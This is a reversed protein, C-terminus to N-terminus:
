RAPDRSAGTPPALDKQEQWHRFQADVDHESALAQAVRRCEDLHARAETIKAKCVEPGFAYRAGREARRLQGVWHAEARQAAMVAERTRQYERTRREAPSANKRPRGPLAHAPRPLAVLAEAFARADLGRDHVWRVLMVPDVWRGFRRKYTATQHKRVWLGFAGIGQGIQIASPAGARAAAVRSNWTVSGDPDVAIASPQGAILAEAEASLARAVSDHAPEPAAQEPVHWTDLPLCARDLERQLCATDLPTWPGDQTFTAHALWRAVRRRAFPQSMGAARACSGVRLYYTGDRRVLPYRGDSQLRNAASLLRDVDELEEAPNPM